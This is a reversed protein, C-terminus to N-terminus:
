WFLMETSSQLYSLCQIRKEFLDTLPLDSRDVHDCIGFKMMAKKRPSDANV